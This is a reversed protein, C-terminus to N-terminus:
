AFYPQIIDLLYYGIGQGIIAIVSMVGLGAAVGSVVRTVNHSEYPTAAQLVGDLLAPLLLLLSAGFGFSLVQLLFLPYSLYGIHVGTCRACVPFQKGKWFFSRDPRRHCLLM